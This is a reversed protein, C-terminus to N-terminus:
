GGKFPNCKGHIWDLLYCKERDGPGPIPFPFEPKNETEKLDELYLWVWVTAAVVDVGISMFVNTNKTFVIDQCKKYQWYRGAVPYETGDGFYYKQDPTTMITFRTFSGAGTISQIVISNIRVDTQPSWADGASAASRLEALYYGTRQEPTIKGNINGGVPFAIDDIM